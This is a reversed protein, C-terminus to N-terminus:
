QLRPWWYVVAYLVVWVGVVWYWSATALTADIAHKDTLGRQWVWVWLLALEGFSMLIYLGHLGLITWVTSAYANDNWVFHLGRFELFRLIMSALTVVTLLGLLALIVRRGEVAGAVGSPPRAEREASEIVHTVRRAARDVRITPILSLLMLALNLSSVGLDPVPDLIPPSADTRPPPWREFNGQLYFYIVIMLLVTMSEIALM